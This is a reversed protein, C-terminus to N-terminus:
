KRDIRMMLYRFLWPLLLSTVIALLVIASSTQKDIVKVDMGIRSIAVLLTLPAGLLLGVGISEFLTLGGATLLLSPLLKTVLSAMFFLGVQTLAGRDVAVSLDFETGVWIFFFPIFFGFGISALKTELIGKDRFVFSFLAGAVFAGLIGEVGLILALAVFILMLALGARVGIESPDDASVIRSFKQPWWWILTRLLVLVLYAAVFIVALKGMEILLRFGIGYRYYFGM